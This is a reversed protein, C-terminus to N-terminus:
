RWLRGGQLGECVREGNWLQQSDPRHTESNGTPQMALTVLTVIQCPDFMQTPGRPDGVILCWFWWFSLNPLSFSLIKPHQLNEFNGSVGWLLSGQQRNLHSWVKRPGVICADFSEMGATIGASAAFATVINHSTGHYAPLKVHRVEWPEVEPHTSGNGNRWPGPRSSVFGWCVRGRCLGLWTLRLLDSIPYIHTFWRDIIFTDICTKGM